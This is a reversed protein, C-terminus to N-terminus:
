RRRRPLFIGSAAVLLLAASAPEPVAAFTPLPLGNAIAFSDLAAIDAPTVVANAGSDGQGFNAALASFDSGNVSSGYLFNGQDWNTVGKGFNAALISFDSGNVTGDLNADGLLTYKLEIQGSSLNAVVGDAGDAWGVGYRLGNTLSQATSSIIGIGNWNGGNFGSKLYGAITAIPDPGNGYNIFLHNNTLDLTSGSTIALAGLTNAGSGTTLQVVAPTSTQGITLLGTGTIKGTSSNSLLYLSGNDVLSGAGSYAAYVSATAGADIFFTGSNTVAGFFDNAGTGSLQITGSTTNTVTGFVSSEGALAITGTNTLGGTRLIGYGTINESNALASGATDVIGGSLEIDTGTLNSFLAEAGTPVLITGYNTVAGTFDLVGGLPEILSQNTVPCSITGAGTITGDYNLLYGGASAAILGGNVQLDTGISFKCQAEVVFEGGSSVQLNCSIDNASDFQLEGGSQVNVTAPAFVGGTYDYFGQVNLIPSALTGASQTASSNAAITLIDSSITAGGTLALTEAANVTFPNGNLTGGASVVINSYTHAGSQYTFLGSIGLAAASVTAGSQTLSSGIGVSLTSGVSLGMASDLTFSNGLLQGSGVGVSTPGVTPDTFANTGSVWSNPDFLRQIRNNFEDAAYVMGTPAVAVGTAGNFEGNGSGPSGFTSQFTGNSLFTQIRDNYFDTVYVTGAPGVAVGEPFSFDGPASGGNGFTSQLAGASNFIDVENTDGDTVYVTGASSIAVGEPAELEPTGFTSQFAGTSSFTEIRKNGTDAIYVTGNSAIAVSQPSKFDGNGSGGTGFTSQFVGNASFTEVRGNGYDLVYVTGNPAVAIGNPTQFDGNAAGMSGFTSEFAGTSSFTEVRNNLSDTVYVTGTPGVAVAGPDDLQGNGSGDSGWTNLFTPQGLAMGPLVLGGLGAGAAALLLRATRRSVPVFIPM